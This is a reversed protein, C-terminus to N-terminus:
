ALYALRELEHTLNLPARHMVGPPLRLNYGMIEKNLKEATQALRDQASRWDVAAQARAAPNAASHTFTLYAARLRAQWQDVKLGLDRGMVIWEPAYDNDRLIKYALKMDSPTNPDDPLDLPKGTGPLDNFSGEEMAKRIARDIHNEWKDVM